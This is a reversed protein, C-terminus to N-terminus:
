LELMDLDQGVTIDGAYHQRIESVILDLLRSSKQRFHTLVLRRCGAESAIRAVQPAGALIHESLFRTEETDIEEGALYCCVVLTDTGRALRNLDRGAVADGTVTLVRSGEEVRYGLASWDGELGLATEGHEVRGTEVKIGQGLEIAGTEIDHTQVLETVDSIPAGLIEAERTRFAIDSAYVENFLAAVINTTRRPGYVPLPKVRGNNWAAMLLDGLGGIHDYHHHTIFVADLQVPDVAVRALQTAVGRGADFLLRLGGAEVLTAPGQRHPDPRPGGTGLLTLRM